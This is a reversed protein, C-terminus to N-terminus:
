KFVSAKYFPVSLNLKRMVCYPKMTVNLCKSNELLKDLVNKFRMVYKFLIRYKIKFNFYKNLHYLLSRNLLHLKTKGCGLSSQKSSSVLHSSYLHGEWYRKGLNKKFSVCFYFLKWTSSFRGTVSCHAINFISHVQYRIVLFECFLFRTILSCNEKGVRSISTGVYKFNDHSDHAAYCQNDSVLQPKCTVSM